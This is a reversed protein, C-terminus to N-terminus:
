PTSQTPTDSNETARVAWVYAVFNPGEFIYIPQLYPNYNEALFYGMYVSTISVQPKNPEIVVVGKGTRLDEFAEEASKIPYTAFTEMDIPFYTFQFSIYNELNIADKQVLANVLSTNFDPTFIAKKDIESPWLSIQALSAESKLSTPFLRTEEARFLTVKNRGGGLDDKLIGLKGLSKKFDEILKREDDLKEKSSTTAENSYNFNGTDLDITLTKNQEQFRYKTESLIQPNLTLNFKAALSQTKQPSLLTAFTKTVFYVKQVKEFGPDIGMKPLGGTITDLSYTFNSSSVNSRPFDPALLMGFKFDPIEEVPPLNAINYAQWVKYGIFGSTGLIITLISIVILQKTLIATQTLTM